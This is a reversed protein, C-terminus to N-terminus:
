SIWARVPGQTEQLSLAWHRAPPGPDPASSPARGSPPLPSRPTALPRPSARRSPATRPASASRTPWPSGARAWRSGRTSTSCASPSSCSARAERLAAEVEAAPVAADVVLAVDEKAVPYSSFTPAPRLHIALEILLDLDVEAAVTRKPLGFAACVTPHVEGAHGVVRDGVALEACRGPHWPALDSATAFINGDTFEVVSCAFPVDGGLEDVAEDFGRVLNELAAPQPYCDDDMIWVHDAGSAYGRLMGEAFGGAGGTNETMSVVELPASTQLERLYDLLESKKLNGGPLDSAFHTALEDKLLLAGLEDFSVAACDILWGLLLLPAAASPIEGIEAYRLKSVRFHVGKRMVLRVLLAQAPLPLQLFDVIFALEADDMLDRHHVGLWDLAKRFNALYYLEPADLALTKVRPTEQVLEAVDCLQWQLRGLGGLVATGAM